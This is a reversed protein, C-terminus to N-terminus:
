RGGVGSGGECDWFAAGLPRFAWVAGVEGGGESPLVSLAAAGWGWGGVRLGGLCGWRTAGLFGFVGEIGAEPLALM